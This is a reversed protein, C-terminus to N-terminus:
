GQPRTPLSCQRTRVYSLMVHSGTRLNILQALLPLLPCPPVSRSCSELLISNKAQQTMESPQDRGSSTIADYRNPERSEPGFLAVCDVEGVVAGSTSATFCGRLLDASAVNVEVRCRGGNQHVPECCGGGVSHSARGQVHLKRMVAVLKSEMVADCGTEEGGGSQFRVGDGEGGVACCVCM